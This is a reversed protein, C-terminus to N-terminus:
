ESRATTERAAGTGSAASTVSAPRHRQGALVLAGVEFGAAVCMVAPTLVDRVGPVWNSAVNSASLGGFVGYLVAGATPWAFLGARKPVWYSHEDSGFHIPIRADPPLAVAAWGSAAIMALLLIGGIALSAVV